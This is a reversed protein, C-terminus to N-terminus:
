PLIVPNFDTELLKEMCSHSEYLKKDNCAYHKVRSKSVPTVWSVFTFSRMRSRFRKRGCLICTHRSEKSPSKM